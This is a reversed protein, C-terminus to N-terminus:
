AKRLYGNSVFCHQINCHFACVCLFPLVWLHTFCCFDVFYKYIRLNQLYNGFVVTVSFLFSLNSRDPNQRPYSTLPLPSFPRFFFFLHYKYISPPWNWQVLNNKKICILDNWDHFLFMVLDVIKKKLFVCMRKLLGLSKM